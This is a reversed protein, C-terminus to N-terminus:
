SVPLVICISLMFLLSVHVNLTIKRPAQIFNKYIKNYKIDQLQVRVICIVDSSKFANDVSGNSELSPDLDGFTHHMKFASIESM